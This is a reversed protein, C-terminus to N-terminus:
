SLAGGQAREHQAAPTYQRAAQVRVAYTMALADGCDPSAIGRGRMDEKSELRFVDRGGKTAFTHEPAVLDARLQPDDPL